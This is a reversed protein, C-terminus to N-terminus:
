AHGEGFVELANAFPAVIGPLVTFTGAVTDLVAEHLYGDMLAGVLIGERSFAVNPAEDFVHVKM